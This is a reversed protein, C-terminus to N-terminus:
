KYANFIEEITKLDAKNLKFWEGRIRKSKFVIHLFKEIYRYHFTPLEFVCELEYANGTQMHRVRDDTGPTSSFGIKYHKTGIANIVYVCGIQTTQLSDLVTKPGVDRGITILEEWSPRDHTTITAVYRDKPTDSKSNPNHM